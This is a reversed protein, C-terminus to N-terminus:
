TVARVPSECVVCLALVERIDPIVNHGATYFEMCLKAVPEETIEFRNPCYEQLKACAQTTEM